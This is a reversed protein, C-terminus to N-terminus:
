NFIFPLGTKALAELLGFAFVTRELISPDVGTEQRLFALHESSFTDKSIV